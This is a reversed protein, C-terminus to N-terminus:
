RRVFVTRSDLADTSNVNSSRTLTLGYEPEQVLTVTDIFPAPLYDITVTLESQGTQDVRALIPVDHEVYSHHLYPGSMPGSCRRNEGVGATLTLRGAQDDGDLSLEPGTDGDVHRVTLATAGDPTIYEGAFRSCLESPEAAIPVRRGAPSVRGDRDAGERAWDILDGVLERAQPRELAANVAIVRGADPVVVCVQGFMGSAYYAGDQLWIQYGYGEEGDRSAVSYGSGNWTSHSAAVHWTTSEEVWSTPLLRRGNWEGGRLYLVGWKLLDVTRLSLGNGGSNFGEPDTSWTHGIFGLPDFLRLRLYEDLREGVAQQVCVSLMHSTGSSYIFDGGPESVMDEGLYETIWSSELTRWLLGSSGSGHGTRMTLLDRVRIVAARPDAPRGASSPLYDLMPADLDLLGEAVALGAASSVFSKTASHLMHSIDRSRDGLYWEILIDDRDAVVCHTVGTNAGRFKEILSDLTMHPVKKLQSPFRGDPARGFCGGRVSM